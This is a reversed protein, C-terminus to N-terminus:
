YCDGKGLSDCFSHFMQLVDLYTKVVFTQTGQNVSIYM